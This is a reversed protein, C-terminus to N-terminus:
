RFLREIFLGVKKGKYTTLVTAQKKDPNKAAKSLENRATDLPVGPKGDVQLTTSEEVNVFCLPPFLVCWWNAGEANGIKVKVAEYEGAPLVMSGYSKTPFTDIGYELSVAYDKGWTHIVENAISILQNEMGKLIERSETLSSSQALKPAVQKLIEDRVAYKLLQDEQSDSNAIVHFRILNEPNVVEEKEWSLTYLQSTNTGPGLGLVGSLLGLCIVGCIIGKKVQVSKITKLVFM